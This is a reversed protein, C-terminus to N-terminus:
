LVLLLVQMLVQVLAAVVDYAVVAAVAAPVVVALDVIFRCCRFLVSNRTKEGPASSESEKTLSQIHNISLVTAAVFWPLGFVSCIIVIVALILLDLHYGGGKRLKHEKRNVIM